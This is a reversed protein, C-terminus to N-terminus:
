TTNVDMVAERWIKGLVNNVIVGDNIVTIHEVSLICNFLMLVSCNILRCDM